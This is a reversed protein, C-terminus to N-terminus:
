SSSCAFVIGYKRSLLGYYDRVTSRTMSAAEPRLFITLGGLAKSVGMLKAELFFKPIFDLYLNVRNRYFFYTCNLVHGLVEQWLPEYSWTSEEFGSM